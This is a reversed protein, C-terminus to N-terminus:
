EDPGGGLETLIQTVVAEPTRDDTEFQWTAVEAYLPLREALLKALRGRVNGLLLPRATNLGVRRAAEAASVQLWIVQHGALARRTEEALIAGGGLSLVAADGALAADTAARELERFAAEGDVAFIDSIERGQAAEIEADIDRVPLGLREALLAAITTKGSGPSGVLVLPRTPDYAPTM